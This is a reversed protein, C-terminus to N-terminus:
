YQFCHVFICGQVVSLHRCFHRRIKSTQDRFCCCFYWYFCGGSLCRTMFRLTINTNSVPPPNVLLEHLEKIRPKILQVINNIIKKHHEKESDALYQLATDSVPENSYVIAVSCLNFRFSNITEPFDNDSLHQTPRRWDILQASHSNSM